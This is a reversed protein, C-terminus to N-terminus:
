SCVMPSFIQMFHDLFTRWVFFIVSFVFPAVITLRARLTYRWLCTMSCATSKQHTVLEGIVQSLLSPHSKGMLQKEEDSTACSSLDSDEGGYCLVMGKNDCVTLICDLEYSKSWDFSDQSNGEASIQHGKQL